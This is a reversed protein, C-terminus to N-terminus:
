IQNVLQFSGEHFMLGIVKGGEAFLIRFVFRVDIGM